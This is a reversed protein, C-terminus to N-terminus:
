LKIAAHLYPVNEVRTMQMDKILRSRRVTLSKPDGQAWATKPRMKQLFFDWSPNNISPTVSMATLVSDIVLAPFNDIWPGFQAPNRSPHQYIPNGAEGCTMEKFLPLYMADYDVLRITGKHDVILNRPDLDGHAIGLNLFLNEMARFEEILRDIDAKNEQTLQNSAYIDLTEGSLWEMKLCPFWVGQIKVGQELYDFDVFHKGARGKAFNKIETYRYKRDAFPYLFCKLAFINDGSSVQFIVGHKGIIKESVVPRANTLDVDRFSSGPALVAKEYQELTPWKIEQPLRPAQKLHSPVPRKPPQPLQLKQQSAPKIANADEAADLGGPRMWDPKGASYIEQPRLEQAISELDPRFEDFAPIKSFPCNVLRKLLAVRAKVEPHQHNALDRFVKSKETDNIDSQRFIICEDGGDFRKFLEPDLMVIILSSHILWASFDDLRNDFNHARRMPHQYNPHGLENSNQGSLAPVFMGDYDVLRMDGPCVMINGHQLDGHATGAKKLEKMMFVFQKIVREISSRNGINKRLFQDLPQGEVWEMKLIPYWNQNIQIGKLLYEFDVIYPVHNVSMFQSLQQYRNHQDYVNRLFCKVAISRVDTDFRYVSAFAGSIPKPLGLPSLEANSNKLALDEFSFEPNQIAENYDQPTPWYM